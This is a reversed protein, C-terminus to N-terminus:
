GTMIDTVLCFVGDFLELETGLIPGYAGYLATVVVKTDGGHEEIARDVVDRLEALTEITM